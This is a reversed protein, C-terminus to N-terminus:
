CTNGARERPWNFRNSFSSRSSLRIIERPSRRQPLHNMSGPEMVLGSYREIATFHPLMGARAMSNSGYFSLDNSLLCKYLGNRHPMYRLELWLVAWIVTLAALFSM